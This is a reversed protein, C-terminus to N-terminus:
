GWVLFGAGDSPLLYPCRNRIGDMRENSQGKLGTDGRDEGQGAL